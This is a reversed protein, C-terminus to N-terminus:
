SGEVITAVRLLQSSVRLDHADIARKNVEFAIRPGDRVLGIMGGRRAFDPADGVTLVPADGLAEQLAEMAVPEGVLVLIGTAPLNELGSTRTVEVRRGHLDQGDIMAELTEAFAGEGLVTMQLRDQPVAGRPWEVYRAIRFVLASKLEDESAAGLSALAAGALLLLLAARAPTRSLLGM